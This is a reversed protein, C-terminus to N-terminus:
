ELQLQANQPLEKRQLEGIGVPVAGLGTLAACGASGDSFVYVASFGHKLNDTTGQWTGGSGDACRAVFVTEALTHILRNRSLARVASFPLHWGGESILLLNEGPKHLGVADPLVSIVKGGAALCGEQAAKDAGEANGSVLSFGCAAAYEGAARAFATHEPELKRSGVAGAKRRALASRDGRFFLVPPCRDGLKSKLEPPYDPDASTVPVCDQQRGLELYESLAAGRDLLSSLRLEFEPKFRLAPLKEASLPQGSLGATELRKELQTLQYASLPTLGDGADCCLLLLERATM